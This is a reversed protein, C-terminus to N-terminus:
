RACLDQEDAPDIARPVDAQLETRQEETLEIM